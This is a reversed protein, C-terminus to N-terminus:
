QMLHEGDFQQLGTLDMSNLTIMRSLGGMPGSNRMSHEDGNSSHGNSGRGTRNLFNRERNYDHIRGDVNISPIRKLKLLDVQLRRQNITQAMAESSNLIYQSNRGTDPSIVAKAFRPNAQISEIEQEPLKRKLMHVPNFKSHDEVVRDPRKAMTSKQMLSAKNIINSQASKTEIVPMLKETDVSKSLLMKLYRNKIQMSEKSAGVLLQDMVTLKQMVKNRKDLLERASRKAAQATAQEHFKKFSVNSQYKRISPARRSDRNSDNVSEIIIITPQSEHSQDHAGPEAAQRPENQAQEPL